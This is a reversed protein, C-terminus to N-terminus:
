QRLRQLNQRAGVHGPQLRLIEQWHVAADEPRSMAMLVQALADRTDVQDPHLELSREFADEALELHGLMAHAMALNALLIPISTRDEAIRLGHEYSNVAEEFRRQHHYIQGLDNDIGTLNPDQRRAQEYASIAEEMRGRVQLMRGLGHLAPAYTADLKLAQRYNALALQRRNQDEYARGLLYPAAAHDPYEALKRKYHDVRRQAPALQEFTDFVRTVVASDRLGTREYLRGLNLLPRPDWPSLRAAAHYATEAATNDGQRQYALGLWGQYEGSSPALQTAKRLSAIADALRNQHLRVKGLLHHAEQRRPDIDLAQGLITGATHFDGTGSFHVMALNIRSRVGQPDLEIARELCTRSEDYRGQRYLQGAQRSLAAADDDLDFLDPISTSRDQTGAALPALPDPITAAPSVEPGAIPADGETISLYRRTSPSQLTQQHGSPWDIRISDVGTTGLGFRVRPDFQSEFGRGRQVQRTQVLDGAYLRVRAGIADRNSPDGALQLGIWDAVNGADNRWLSPSDNLNAVVIDADGDNDIDGIAAGRSSSARQMGAELGMETFRGEQNRYLLNRQTYSLGAPFRQLAPYVHGNAVFLDLWGDNDLDELAASWGLFPRVVGGMGTAYTADSFWGRGDNAYLTNVDDSFNTVYIDIDGDNDVDGGDLGMGAQALGNESYAVGLRTGIETFKVITEGPGAGAEATDNRFLLNPESDNAVYIDLDGDWEIDVFLIGLGPYSWAGIGSSKSIDEFQGDGQNHYLQDAQAPIGEPGCYSEVEKFHCWNGDAPPAQLDFELYNTVYLDLLGDRDIDAFAASTGWGTQGLGASATIDTFRIQDDASDNRWLRDEGWYTIYLDPDGDNDIDGVACGMGWGNHAIGSEATVDRYAISGGPDTENLYLRHGGGEPAGEARTGDVFFLDLRGDGNVDFLAVGGSISEVIYRQELTGSTHRHQLGSTAAIETFRLGPNASAVATGEAPSPEPAQQCGTWMVLTLVALLAPRRLVCM